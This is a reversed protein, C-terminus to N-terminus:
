IGPEEKLRAAFDRFAAGPDPQKMFYEGMLFGNFGAQRLHRVVAVDDIGSEAIRPMDAPLKGALAVSRALDVTFTTLDRNNIGVLSVAPSIKDLQAESHMELLVEMDLSRALQALRNVEAASLCEAILLIVDAGFAKAEVVQYDDIVFDKRLIPLENDRAAELDALAGSFFHEDTLVSLGAAGYRCYDATVRRVTAEANIMGKSPSKRKFEAIIGTKDADKLAAKLSLPQRGFRPSRELAAVTTVEKREAVEQRKRAVIKDLINM